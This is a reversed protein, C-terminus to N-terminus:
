KEIEKIDAESISFQLSLAIGRVVDLLANQVEFNRYQSVILTPVCYVIFDLWDASRYLSKTSNLEISLWSGKFSSAPILKRSQDMCVKIEIFQQKTLAFPYQNEFGTYKYTDCYKPSIFSFVEKAINSLLHLEDLGHFAVSDFSSLKSFISPLKIGFNNNM